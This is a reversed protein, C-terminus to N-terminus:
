MTLKWSLDTGLLTKKKKQWNKFMIKIKCKTFKLLYFFDSM